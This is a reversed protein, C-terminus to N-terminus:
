DLLKGTSFVDVMSKAQDAQPMMESVSSVDDPIESHAEDADIRETVAKACEALRAADRALDLRVRLQARTMKVSRFPRHPKQENTPEMFGSLHMNEHLTQLEEITLSRNSFVGLRQNGQSSLVQHQSRLLGDQFRPMLNTCSQGENLRAMTLSTPNDGAAAEDISFCQQQQQQPHMAQLFSNGAKSPPSQAMHKQAQIYNEM